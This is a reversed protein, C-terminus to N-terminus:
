EGRLVEVSTPGEGIKLYRKKQGVNIVGNVLSALVINIPLNVRIFENNAVAMVCCYSVYCYITLHAYNLRRALRNYFWAALVGTGVSGALAGSVGWDLTFVDLFTYLNTVVPMVAEARSQGPYQEILAVKYLLYNVAELSYLGSDSRPYFGKLLTEYALPSSGIYAYLSEGATLRPGREPQVLRTQTVLFVVLGGVALAAGIGLRTRRTPRYLAIWAVFSIVALGVIPARTFKAACLVVAWIYLAGLLKSSILARSHLFLALPIYLVYDWRWLSMSFTYGVTSSVETLRLSVANNIFDRFFSLPTQSARRLDLVFALGQLAVLTSLITVAASRSIVVPSTTLKAPRRIILLTAALFLWWAAFLVVLTFLEPRILGGLVIQSLLLNAGWPLSFLHAHTLWSRTRSAILRCLIFAGAFGILDTIWYATESSDM